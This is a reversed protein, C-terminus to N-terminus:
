KLPATTAATLGRGVAMYVNASVAASLTKGTDSSVQNGATPKLPNAGPTMTFGTVKAARSLEELKDFFQELQFYGGVVNISLPIANLVGASATGAATGAGTLTTPAAAAPAAGTAGAVPTTPAAAAVAVPSPAGPSLSVLEVGADAAADSLTRILSPLAPNDPIKAAVLALRAQQQPLTKAQAKLMALQTQLGSNTTEQSAVETRVQAAESRKPSILLFWGAALVALVGVVTLAVWQKMKSSM